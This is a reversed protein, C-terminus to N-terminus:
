VYLQAEEVEELQIKAQKVCEQVAERMENEGESLTGVLKNGKTMVIQLITKLSQLHRPYSSTTKEEAIIHGHLVFSCQACKAFDEYSREMHLAASHYAKILYDVGKTIDTKGEVELYMSAYAKWLEFSTTVKTSAFKFLDLIKDYYYIGQEGTASVMNDRVAAVMCNLIKGDCYKHGTNIIMRYGHIVSAFHKLRAGVCIYNEWMRWENSAHKCSEKYCNFARPLENTKEYAAGLNSWGMSSEDNILVSEHFCKIATKYDPIALATCGATFWLNGQLHCCALSSLMCELAKKYEKLNFYHYGLSKMARASRQGSMEWAKEYHSIDQTTDGLICYLKPTEEDAILERTMREAAEYRGILVLCRIQEEHMHLKEFLDLASKHSGIGSYLDALLKQQTWVPPLGSSFINETRACSKKCDIGLVLEELQELCRCLRRMSSKELKSRLFFAHTSICYSFTRGEVIAELFAIIEERLMDELAASKLKLAAAHILFPATINNVANHNVKADSFSIQELLTDDNMAIPAPENERPACDSFNETLVTEVRLQPLENQQYKTRKGMAGTLHFQFGIAEKGQSIQKRSLSLHDFQLYVFSKEIHIRCRQEKPLGNFEKSDEISKVCHGVQDFLNPCLEDLMTQKLYVCRMKFLNNSLTPARTPSTFYDEALKFLQFCRVLPYMANNISSYSKVLKQDDSEFTKLFDSPFLPGTFNNQIFVNLASVVVIFKDEEPLNGFSCQIRAYCEVDDTTGLLLKIIEWYEGVKVQGSIRNDQLEYLSSSIMPDDLGLM